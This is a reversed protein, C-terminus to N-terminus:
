DIKDNNIIEEKTKQKPKDETTTATTQTNLVSKVHAELEVTSGTMFLYVLRRVENENDATKNVVTDGIKVELKFM